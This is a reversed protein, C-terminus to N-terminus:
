WLSLISVSLSSSDACCVDIFRPGYFEDLWRAIWKNWNNINGNLNDWNM